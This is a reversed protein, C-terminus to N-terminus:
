LCVCVYPIIGLITPRIGKFFAFFGERAYITGCAHIIGRYTKEEVQVALRTRVLDLPYTCFVAALGALSGAFLSTVKSEGIIGPLVQKAHEYVFFQVGAYPFVRLMQAGNGKYFGRYGETRYISALGEFVGQNFYKHHRAQLLIKLRDLPAVVSKACCGAIGGALMNRGKRIKAGHPAEEGRM